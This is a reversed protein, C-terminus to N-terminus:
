FGKSYKFRYTDKIKFGGEWFLRFQEKSKASRYCRSPM